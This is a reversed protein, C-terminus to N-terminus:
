APSRLASARSARAMALLSLFFLPAGVAALILFWRVLGFAALIVVLYIFDRRALADALRSFRSPERAVSTFLPGEKTKAPAMTQLYVFGASALTGLIASAGLALPWASGSVRSWGAAIAGFVACHVVNDGWFDLVGGLRSEQFKLRALEGDCGDVISHALFLLAGAFEFAPRSPLFLAAGALGLGVSVITMDNPTVRTAALRRSIALSIRRNVHRALFGDEQKVLGALLWKELKPLGAPSSVSFRSEDGSPNSLPVFPRSRLIRDLRDEPGIDRLVAAPDTTEMLAAFEGDAHLREPELSMERLSRLWPLTPVVSGPLLVVRGPLLSGPARAQAASLIRGFGAREAAKEIRRRLSLGLVVTEPAVDGALVVLAANPNSHKL